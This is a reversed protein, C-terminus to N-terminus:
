SEAQPVTTDARPSYFQLYRLAVYAVVVTAITLQVFGWQHLGDALEQSFGVTEVFGATKMTASAAIVTPFTFASYAPSFPLRLLEWFAMYVVVSMVIGLGLLIIVLMTSPTHGAYALYGALCLNPPAAMIAITPKAAAPIEAKFTLRHIMLPLMIAYAGIGFWLIAQSLPLFEPTPTSLVAVVPGIPPVFWSPVMHTLHLDQARHYIFGLLFAFHATVAAFWLFTGLDPEVTRVSISILMTAMALTPIVSGVVPHSLETWLLKPNLSFKIVLAMGIAAALIAGTWQISGGSPLQSEWLLSLSAIGLALGAAPTPTKSLRSLFPSLM